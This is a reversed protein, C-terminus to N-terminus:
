LEYLRHWWYIGQRYGVVCGVLLLAVAAVHHIRVWQQWALGFGFRHFDTLLLNIYWMELLAHVITSLLIGLSTFLFVYVVRKM